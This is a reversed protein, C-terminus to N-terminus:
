QGSAGTNNPRRPGAPTATTAPPARPHKPPPPAPPPPRPPPPPPPPQPPPTNSPHRPRPTNSPRRPAPGTNGPAPRTSRTALVQTPKPQALTISFRSTTACLRAAHSRSTSLSLSHVLGTPGSTMALARAPSQDTTSM